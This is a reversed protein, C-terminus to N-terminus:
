ASGGEKYYGGDDDLFTFEYSFSSLHFQQNHAYGRLKWDYQGSTLTGNNDEVHLSDVGANIVKYEEGNIEINKYIVNAPFSIASPDVLTVLKTIGDVVVQTNAQEPSSERITTISNTIEIQKSKCRLSGRKFRRTQNMRLELEWVNDNDEWIWDDEWVMGSSFSIPTLTKYVDYSDDYSRIEFDLDTRGDGVCTIKTVWKNLTPEQFSYDIHRLKYIVPHEQWDTLLKMPEVIPDGYLQGSHEFIYGSTTARYLTDGSFTIAVNDFSGDLGTITTFANFTCDYIYIQYSNSSKKTCWYIRQEINDYAGQIDNPYQALEKYRVYFDRDEDPIPLVKYADTKYFGDLGAFFVGKDTKIVSDNHLCTASEAVLVKRQLGGGFVDLVGELRWVQSNTFVILNSQYASLGIIESEFDTFFNAPVSDPDGAQSQWVRYPFEASNAYFCVNDVIECYKANPPLDNNPLGSETYLTLGTLNEDTTNDVFSTVGNAVEGVKYSTEGNNATRYIEVVVSAVDYNTEATNVLEPIGSITNEAISGNTIRKQVVSSVDLYKAEGVYYERKNVFSYIFSQGDDVTPTIVFTDDPKPIGLNVIKTDNSEDAYIKVPNSYKSDTIIVHKNWLATSVRSDSDGNNLVFETNVGGLKGWTDNEHYVIESGFVAYMGGDIGLLKCPRSVFTSPRNTLSILKSGLRSELDRDKTILLNDLVEFSNENDTQIYDTIGGVFRRIDKRL